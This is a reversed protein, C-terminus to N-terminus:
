YEYDNSISDFIRRFDSEVAKHGLDLSGETALIFQKDEESLLNFLQYGIDVRLEEMALAIDYARKISDYMHVPLSMGSVDATINFDSLIQTKNITGISNM